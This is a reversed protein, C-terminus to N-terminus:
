PARARAMRWRRRCRATASRALSRGRVLRMARGDRQGDRGGTVAQERGVLRRAADRQDVDLVAPHEVLELGAVFRGSNRERAVAAAAGDGVPIAVVQRDELDLVVLDRDGAADLNARLGAAHRHRAVARGGEDGDPDAVLQDADIQIGLLDGAPELDAALGAADGERGVFRLKSTPLERDWSTDSTSARLVPFDHFRDRDVAVVQALHRDAGVALHAVDGVHPVPPERGGLVVDVQAPHEALPERSDREISRLGVGCEREVGLALGRAVGVAHGDAAILFVHSDTAASRVLHHDELGVQAWEGPPGVARAVQDRGLQELFVSPM